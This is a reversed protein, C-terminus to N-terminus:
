APQERLTSIVGILDRVSEASFMVEDPIAMGCAEEIEVLASLLLVSDIGPIAALPADVDIAAPEVEAREALANVVANQIQGSM